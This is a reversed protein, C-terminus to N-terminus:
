SKSQTVNKLTSYDTKYFEFVSDGPLVTNMNLRFGVQANKVQCGFMRFESANDLESILDDASFVSAWAKCSSNFNLNMITDYGSIDVSIFDLDSGFSTIFMEGKRANVNKLRVLSRDFIGWRSVSGLLCNEMWMRSLYSRINTKSSEAFSCDLFHLDSGQAFLFNEAEIFDVNQCILEGDILLVHENRLDGSEPKIVMPEASILVREEEESGGIIQIRGYSILQCSEAFHLQQGPFVMLTIGKDILLDQDLITKKNRFFCVTDSLWSLPNKEQDPIEIKYKLSGTADYAPLDSVDVWFIKSSGPIRSKIKLNKLKKSHHRFEIQIYHAYTDRAKAPLVLGKELACEEKDNISLSIIEIPFDSVPTLSLLVTSDTESEKFAHFPKPLELNHRILEINEFYPDFTFKRYPFEHALVGLKQDLEPQIKEIFEHFYKEDCIRELESIYAAFFVPDSFLQDHYNFQPVEYDSPIRQGAIRETKRVSFSEYGVPEIKDTESNYFFKVDSWDLSHQGGVLDIIAHFRAMKEVDFVESTMKNGRRFEELLGAGKKYTQTLVSDDEVTGKEYPEAFSASYSGYEEDLYTGQLEDIRWEWYLNPNWRLIAGNPRDNRELVHQGFHEEVAYIGLDKDNLKLNIFDYKLYIVGENKLLEHYVWEYAYNRTGPAQLSFRSMGMVTKKKVKVRFSWKDGELHDTMHGKLRMEGKVTDGDEVIKCAVYNNEGDNIQVGRELADNRRKELFTYDGDSLLLQIEKPEVQRALAKNHFYVTTFERIGTFGYQLAVRHVFYIAICGLVLLVM